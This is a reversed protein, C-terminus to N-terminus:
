RPSIPSCRVAPPSPGDQVTAHAGVTTCGCSAARCRSTSLLVGASGAGTTSRAPTGSIDAVGTTETSSSRNCVPSRGATVLASAAARDGISGDMVACVIV